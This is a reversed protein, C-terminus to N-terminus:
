CEAREEGHKSQLLFPRLLLCAPSAASAQTPWSHLAALDAPAAAAPHLPPAAVAGSGHMTSRGAVDEHMHFRQLAM